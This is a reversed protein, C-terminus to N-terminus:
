CMGKVHKQYETASMGTHKKFVKSFYNHDRYGCLDSIESVTLDSSQLCRKALTMRMDELYAMCSMSTEKYFADNLANKNVSFRKTLSAITIDDGINEYLYMAVKAVFRDRYLEYQRFGRYFDATATFLISNIFYRVRLIWYNDPQKEIDYKVSKFFRNLVEYEQTILSWYRINRDGSNFQSLLLYDQYVSGAFCDEFKVDGFAAAETKELYGMKGDDKVASFFKEYRGSGIAEFTFEERIFTPKFCITDCKINSETVLRFDAKENLVIGVPASMMKYGGDEEVVFSGSSVLVMKYTERDNLYKPFGDKQEYFVDISCDMSSRKSRTKLEM